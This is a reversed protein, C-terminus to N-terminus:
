LRRRSLAAAEQLLSDRSLEGTLEPVPEDEAWVGFVEDEVSSSLAGDAGGVASREREKLLGRGEPRIGTGLERDDAAGWSNLWNVSNSPVARGRGPCTSPTGRSAAPCGTATSCALVSRGAGLSVTTIFNPPVETASASHMFRTARRM